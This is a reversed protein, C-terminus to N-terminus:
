RCIGSQALAFSACIIRMLGAAFIPLEVSLAAGMEDEFDSYVLKRSRKEIFQVLDRLRRRVRELM